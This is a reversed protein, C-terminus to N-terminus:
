EGLNMRKFLLDEWIPGVLCVRLSQKTPPTSKFSHIQLFKLSNHTSSLTTQILPYITLNSPFQPSQNYFNPFSKISTM